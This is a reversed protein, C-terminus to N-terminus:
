YFDEIDSLLNKCRYKILYNFIKSKDTPTSEDYKAVIEERIEQPMEELDILVKNRKFNRYVEEDM